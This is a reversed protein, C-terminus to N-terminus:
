SDLNTEISWRTPLNLRSHGISSALPYLHPALLGVTHTSGAHAEVHDVPRWALQHELISNRMIEFPSQNTRKM